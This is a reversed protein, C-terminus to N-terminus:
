HIENRTFVANSGTYYPESQLVDITSGGNM